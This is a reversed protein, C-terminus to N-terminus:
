RLVMAYASCSRLGMGRGHGYMTLGSPRANFEGNDTRWCIVKDEVGQDKPGLCWSVFPMMVPSWPLRRLATSARPSEQPGQHNQRLWPLSSPGSCRPPNFAGPM